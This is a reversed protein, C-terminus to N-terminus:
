SDRKLIIYKLEVIESRLLRVEKTVESIDTVQNNSGPKVFYSSIFGTLSSFLGVGATMLFCAIIRGETTAPVLDGYGVTTITTFVWWVADRPTTITAEPVLECQLIAVSSLIILPFSISIVVALSSMKNSQLFYEALNKASRVARLIRLIRIIRILRGARFMDFTPISSILDIWGWKLFALKSPATMLRMFFDALFVLCVGVDIADLFKITDPTLPLVSQFLLVVLVYFSLILTVIHMMSLREEGNPNLGSTVTHDKSEELLGAKDQNNQAQVQDKM